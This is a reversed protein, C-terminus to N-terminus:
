KKRMGKIGVVGEEQSLRGRYDEGPEERQPNVQCDARTKKLSTSLPQSARYGCSDTGSLMIM